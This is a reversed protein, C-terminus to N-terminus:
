RPPLELTRLLSANCYRRLKTKQQSISALRYRFRKIGGIAHEVLVRVASKKKNKAKQTETLDRGKPKQSSHFDSPNPFETELGKFGLDV